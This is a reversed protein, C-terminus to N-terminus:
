RLLFASLCFECVWAFLANILSVVQLGFIDKILHAVVRCRCSYRKCLLNVFLKVFNTKISSKGVLCIPSEFM